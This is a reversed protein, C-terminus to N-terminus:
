DAGVDVDPILRRRVYLTCYNSEFMNARSLLCVMGTPTPLVQSELLVRRTHYEGGAIYQTRLLYGKRCRSLAFVAYM